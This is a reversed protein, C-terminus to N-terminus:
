LTDADDTDHGLQKNEELPEPSAVTTASPEEEALASGVEPKGFAKAKPAAGVGPTSPVTGILPTSKFRSIRTGSPTNSRSVDGSASRENSLTTTRGRLLSEGVIATAITGDPAQHRIM